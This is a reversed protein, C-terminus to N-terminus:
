RSSTISIRNADGQQQPSTVGAGLFLNVLEQGSRSGLFRCSGEVNLEKARHDCHMKNDGDGVFVVKADGHSGLIDPVAEILIDGGKMGGVMRGVFLVVPDLCGIGYDGKISGPDELM